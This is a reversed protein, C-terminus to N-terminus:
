KTLEKIRKMDEESLELPDKSLLELLESEKEVAGKVKEKDYEGTDTLPCRVTNNITAGHDNKYSYDIEIIKSNILRQEIVKTNPSNRSWTSACDLTAQKRNKLLVLDTNGEKNLPCSLWGSIYAGYSNKSKYKVEIQSASTKFGLLITSEPDKFETKHFNLCQQESNNERFYSRIQEQKQEPLFFYSVGTLFIVAILVIIYKM